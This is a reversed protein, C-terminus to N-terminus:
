EARVVIRRRYITQLVSLLHDKSLIRNRDRKSRTIIMLLGKNCHIDIKSSVIRAIAYRIDEEDISPLVEICNVPCNLCMNTYCLGYCPIRIGSTLFINYTNACCASPLPVIGINRAIEVLERKIDSYPVSVQRNGLLRKGKLRKKIERTDFRLTELKRLITRTVRFGGIVVSAVGARKAELMIDTAENENIGPIIPRLFLTPKLGKKCLNKISELRLTPSPAKPELRRYHDLTVITILISIPGRRSLAKFRDAIEESIYQKTSIQVPNKLYKLISSMYEFTRERVSPTALPETVSGIAVYTGYLSPVFYRNNVLAYVLELSTLAYPQIRDTPFGMDGIYCYICDFVCGIATHVTMGCPRPRRRSHSDKLSRKLSELPLINKLELLLRRKELSYEKFNM